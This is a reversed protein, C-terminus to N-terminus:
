EMWEEYRTQDDWMALFKDRAKISIARDAIVDLREDNYRHGSTTQNMSGSTNIEDDIAVQKLHMLGDHQNVRIPIGASHLLELARQQKPDNGQGRDTIVRVDVGRKKAEILAKVIPPFTITYVAVYIYRRAHDYLTVLRDGPLNEPAYYTEIDAANALSLDWLGFRSSHTSALGHLLILISLFTLKVRGSWANIEGVAGRTQWSLRKVRPRAGERAVLRCPAQVGLRAPHTRQPTRVVSFVTRFSRTKARRPDPPHLPPKKLM